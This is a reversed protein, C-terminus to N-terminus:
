ESRVPCNLLTVEDLSMDHGMGLVALLRTVSRQLAKFDMQKEGGLVVRYPQALKVAIWMVLQIM